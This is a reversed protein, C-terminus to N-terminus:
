TVHIRTKQTSSTYTEKGNLKM